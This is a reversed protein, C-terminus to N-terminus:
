PRCSTATPRCSASRSTPRAWLGTAVSAGNVGGAQRDQGQGRDAETGEEQGGQPSPRSRAETLAPGAVATGVSGLVLALVRDRDHRCRRGPGPQMSAGGHHAVARPRGDDGAPRFAFPGARRMGVLAQAPVRQSPVMHGTGRCAGRTTDGSVQWHLDKRVPITGVRAGGLSARNATGWILRGSAGSVQVTPRAAARAPDRRCWLSELTRYCFVWLDARLSALQDLDTATASGRPPWLSTRRWSSPSPGTSGSRTSRTTTTTPWASSTRSAARAGEEAAVGPRQQQHQHLRARVTRISPSTRRAPSCGTTSPSRAAAAVPRHRLPVALAGHGRGRRPLPARDGRAGLPPPPVARAGPQRHGRRRLGGPAAPPQELGGQPVARADPTEDLGITNPSLWVAALGAPSFFAEPGLPRGLFFDDNLYVFHEALDPLRTCRRSSPTRTSRRCRRPAAPDRRPRGRRGAPADADLWDPVQGATVLHIRRVWPAFLHVSRLSYRLEDRSVFRAQGSSERTTATGSLGALRDLRAQNWAPDRGDVWTFVVDVPFTCEHVTPAAM